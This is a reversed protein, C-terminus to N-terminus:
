ERDLGATIMWAEQWWDNPLAQEMDWLHLYTVAVYCSWIVALILGRIGDRYGGRWIYRYLFAACPRLLLSGWSFHEGRERRAEAELPTWRILLTALSQRMTRHAYHILPQLLTGCPGDLDVKEHVPRNDYRAVDRRFLRLQYDPWYAGHRIPEGWAYTLRAIRYGQYATDRHLTEIIEDRLVSSVREDSDVFLVWDHLAQSIAWNKQASPTDYRRQIIRCPYNQCIEVTQDSSFSDCILVEDAWLVSEICDRIVDASNGTQVIITLSPTQRAM